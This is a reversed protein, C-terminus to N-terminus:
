KHLSEMYAIFNSALIGPCTLECVPGLFILNTITITISIRIISMSTSTSTNISIIYALSTNFASPIQIAYGRHGLWVQLYRCHLRWWQV